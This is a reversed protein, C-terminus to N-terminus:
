GSLPACDNTDARAACVPAGSDCMTAPPPDTASHWCSTCAVAPSPSSTIKPQRENSAYGITVWIVPATATRTGTVALWSNSRGAIAAAMVGAVRSIKMQVGFLGVPM